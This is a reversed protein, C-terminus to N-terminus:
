SARRGRSVSLRGLLLLGAGLLWYTSPEPIVATVNDVGLVAVIQPPGAFPGGFEPLPNHFIRVEDADTLSGVITGLGGSVLDAPTIPFNVTMWGSMAPIVVANASMALNLPPTMPVGSFDEFLLRLHLETTGFNHVDMRIAAIGTALYNGAWQPGFFAALRSGAMGAGAGLSQLELYADGAGAPGGTPINEPPAPHTPDGVRWGMVTLDEFTDVQNLTLGYLGGALMLTVICITSRVLM